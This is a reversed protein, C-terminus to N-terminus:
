GTRGVKNEARRGRSQAPDDPGDSWSRTNSSPWSALSGPRGRRGRAAHAAPVANPYRGRASGSRRALAWKRHPRALQPAFEALGPATAATAEM